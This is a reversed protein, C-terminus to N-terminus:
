PLDSLFGQIAARSVPEDLTPAHRVRPVEVVQIDPNLKRMVEVGEPALIDSLAGRLALIPKKALAVFLAASFNKNLFAWVAETYSRAQAARNAARVPKRCPSRRLSDQFWM